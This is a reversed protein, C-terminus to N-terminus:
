LPPTRPRAIDRVVSHFFANSSCPHDGDGLTKARFNLIVTEVTDHVVTLHDLFCTGPDAIALSAVTISLSAASSLGMRALVIPSHM